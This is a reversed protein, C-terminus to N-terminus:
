CNDGDCPGKKGSLSQSWKRQSTLCIDEGRLVRPSYTVITFPVSRLGPGVVLKRRSEESCM